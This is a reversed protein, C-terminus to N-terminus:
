RNSGAPRRSSRAGRLGLLKSCVRQKIPCFDIARRRSNRLAAFYFLHSRRRKERERRCLQKMQLFSVGHRLVFLDFGSEPLIKKKSDTGGSVNEKISIFILACLIGIARQPAADPIHTHTDSAAPTSSASALLCKTQQFNVMKFRAGCFSVGNLKQEGLAAHEKLLRESSCNRQITALSHSAM